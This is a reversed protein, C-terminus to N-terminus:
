KGAPCTLRTIIVGPAAAIFPQEAKGLTFIFMIRDAPCSHQLILFRCQLLLKSIAPSQVKVSLSATNIYFHPNLHTEVVLPTSDPEGHVHSHIPGPCYTSLIQKPNPVPM